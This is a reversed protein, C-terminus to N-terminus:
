SRAFAIILSGEVRQTVSAWVPNAASRPLRLIKPPIPLKVMGVHLHARDKEWSHVSDRYDGYHNTDMLWRTEGEPTTVIIEPCVVAMKAGPGTLNRPSERPPAHLEKWKVVPNRQCRYKIDACLAKSSLMRAIIDDLVMSEAETPEPENASFQEVHERRLRAKDPVALLRTHYKHLRRLSPSGPRSVDVRNAPFRVLHTRSIAM